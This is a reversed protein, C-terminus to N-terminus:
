FESYIIRGNWELRAVHPYNNKPDILTWHNLPYIIVKQNRISDILGLTFGAELGNNIRFHKKSEKIKFYIDGNKPSIFPEIITGEMKECDELTPNIIPRFSLFALTFIGLSLVLVKFKTKKINDM